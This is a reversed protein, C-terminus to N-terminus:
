GDRPEHSFGPRDILNAVRVDDVDEGDTFEIVPSRVEDHLPEGALRQPLPDLITGQGEFICHGNEILHGVRNKGRVFRADNVAIELWVVDNQYLAM